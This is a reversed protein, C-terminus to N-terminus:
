LYLTCPGSTCPQYTVIHTCLRETPRQAINNTIVSGAPIDRCKNASWIAQGRLTCDNGRVSQEEPQLCDM